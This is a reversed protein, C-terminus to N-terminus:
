LEEKRIYRKTFKRSPYITKLFIEEQQADIVYPVVYVYEEIQIIYMRQHSKNPDPNKRDALLNGAQLHKIVEVFGIGRTAQLIQDKEENFKIKFAM